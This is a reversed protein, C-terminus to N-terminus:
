KKKNKLQAQKMKLQKKAGNAGNKRDQKYANSAMYDTIIKNEEDSLTYWYLKSSLPNVEKQVNLRKLWDRLTPKCVNYIDALEQLNGKIVTNQKM